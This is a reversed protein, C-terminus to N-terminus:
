SIKDFFAYGYPNLEVHRGSLGSNHSIEAIQAYHEDKPLPHSVTQDSINFLCVVIRGEYLREFAIIGDESPLMEFDGYRLILHDKRWQLMHKYANLVSNEDKEQLDVSLAVHSGDLPLWTKAGTSFGAHPIHHTWPIPTRAGDRGAHEPYMAIDYPDRLDEFRLESQPLGLEEGQYICYSGRLSLGLAMGLRAKDENTGQIGELRSIFRKNDHNNLAWCIWGDQVVEQVKAMATHASDKTFSGGLLGFAYAMSFRKDTQTYSAALAESEDGGAEALLCKDDGWGKIYASLEEIWEINEPRCMSNVRQQYAIPNGAPLDTPHPWDRPRVPNDTFDKDYMYCNAVDLRFGDVGMDLWFSATRKIRRRVEPNWYNLAPQNKFFHHLYYQERRPDWTWAPGGFMALWNNPPTGDPKPDRWVYWDARENTRDSRSKKFWVHEESTHSWVQDIIIKLDRKHAEDLLHKFDDLTGFIPDVDCYDSVDYGFDVMPSKFFPSIWIGEVGLDQIHDLHTTIGPLDGIGDANTDCFSRPYVQYIVAGRWWESSQSM